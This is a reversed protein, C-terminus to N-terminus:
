RLPGVLLQDEGDDPYTDGDDASSNVPFPL